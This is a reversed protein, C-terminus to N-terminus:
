WAKAAIFQKVQASVMDQGQWNLHITDNDWRLSRPTVGAARDANDNDSGNGRTLLHSHIDLFHDPFSAALAWNLQEFETRRVGGIAESDAWACNSLVIFRTNASANLTGVMAHVNQLSGQKLWDNHGVWLVSIWSRHVSDALMRAMIQGSTQGGIGGNFCQRNAIQPGLRQGYAETMSDGWLAVHPSGSAAAPAPSAVPAPEGSTPLRTSTDAYGAVVPEVAESSASGGGGGGCGTLSYALAAPGTQIFLRRKM